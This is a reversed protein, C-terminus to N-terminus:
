SEMSRHGTTRTPESGRKKNARRRPPDDPDLHPESKEGANQFMEDSEQVADPLLSIDRNEFASYQLRHRWQLLTSYDLQLEKSLHLTTVGQSFGRLMMVITCCDYRIGSLLTSTFINFVAGCDRCRYKVIPSRKQDHPSQDPPLPHGNPCCLGDPHLSTLLFQFCKEEDLLDTIPFEIM